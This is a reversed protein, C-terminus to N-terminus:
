MVVGDDDGPIDVDEKRREERIGDPVGLTETNRLLSDNDEVLLEKLEALTSVEGDTEKEVAELLRIIDKRDKEDLRKIANPTTM